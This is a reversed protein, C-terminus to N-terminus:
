AVGETVLPRVQPRDLCSPLSFSSLDYRASRPRLIGLMFGLRQESIAGLSQEEWDGVEGKGTWVLRSEDGVILSGGYIVHRNEGKM